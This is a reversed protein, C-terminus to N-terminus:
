SGRSAGLGSVLSWLSSSAMTQLRCFTCLYLVRRWVRQCWALLLISDFTCYLKYCTRDDCPLAMLLRGFAWPGFDKCSAVRDCILVTMRSKATRRESYRSCQVQLPQSTCSSYVGHGPRRKSYSHSLSLPRGVVQVICMSLRTRVM